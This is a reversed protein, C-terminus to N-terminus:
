KERFLDKVRFFYSLFNQELTDIEEPLFNQQELKKAGHVPDFLAFLEQLLVLKFLDLIMSVSSVISITSPQSKHAHIWALLCQKKYPYYVKRVMMDDFQLHYWARITYEVRRCLKLFEERDSQHEESFFVAANISNWPKTDLDADKSWSTMFLVLCYRFSINSPWMVFSHVASSM